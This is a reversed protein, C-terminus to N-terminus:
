QGLCVGEGHALTGWPGLDVLTGAPYYYTFLYCMEETTAQGFAKPESFTCTTTISEGPMLVEKTPYTVQYAFDFAKDHLVRSGGAGGNIV